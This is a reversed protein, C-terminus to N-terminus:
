CLRFRAFPSVNPFTLYYFILGSRHIALTRTRVSVGPVAAVTSCVQRGRSVKKLHLSLFKLEQYLGRLHRSTEATTEALSSCSCAATM